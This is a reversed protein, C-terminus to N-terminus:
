GSGAQSSGAAKSIPQCLGAMPMHKPKRARIKAAQQLDKATLSFTATNKLDM